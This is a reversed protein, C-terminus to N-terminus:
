SITKAPRSLSFSPSSLAQSVAGGFHSHQGLLQLLRPHLKLMVLLRDRLLAGILALVSFLALLTLFVFQSFEPM